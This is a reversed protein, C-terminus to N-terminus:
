KRYQRPEIELKQIRYSFIRTTTGLIRAARAMNGRTSKLAEIIIEREYSKMLAEFSGSVPTNTADATQLSPPMHHGHVVGDSSLIVAREICNELERVNGPWHYSMMMDIAPTSIRRMECNYQRAYKELFHDALLLIDSTRERLPPMFIPFVNLRYFLDERFQKNSVAEELNVHTAAIIRM